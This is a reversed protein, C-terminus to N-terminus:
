KGTFTLVPENLYGNAEDLVDDRCKQLLEDAKLNQKLEALDHEKLILRPHSKELTSLVDGSTPILDQTSGSCSLLLCCAAFSITVVSIKKSKM